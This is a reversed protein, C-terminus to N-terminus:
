KVEGSPSNLGPVLATLLQKFKALMLHKIEFFPLYPLRKVRATNMVVCGDVWGSSNETACASYM